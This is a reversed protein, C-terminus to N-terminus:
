VNIREQVWPKVIYVEWTEPVGYCWRLDCPM